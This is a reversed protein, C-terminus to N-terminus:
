GRLALRLGELDASLGHPQPGHRPRWASGSPQTFIDAASSRAVSPVSWSLQRPSSYLKSEWFQLWKLVARTAASPRRM